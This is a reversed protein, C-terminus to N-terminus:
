CDKKLWNQSGRLASDMLFSPRMLGSSSTESEKKNDALVYVLRHYKNEFCERLIENDYFAEVGKDNLIYLRDDKIELMLGVSNPKISDVTVHLEKDEVPVASEEIEKGMLSLQKFDKSVKRQRYGFVELLKKNAGNPLPAKTFLTLMSSSNKRGSKLEYVEFDPGAINNESIGLLDELTKGIGTDGRRHSEVYGMKEIETMRKVFAAYDM